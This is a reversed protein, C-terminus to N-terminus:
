GSFRQREIAIASVNAVPQVNSVVASCDPAHQLSAPRSVRVIDAGRVLLCIKFHQMPETIDEVLALRAAVAFRIPLLNSEHLIPGAVVPAVPDIRALDFALKTPPGLFGELATQALRDTPVQLILFPNRIDCTVCIAVPDCEVITLAGTGRLPIM